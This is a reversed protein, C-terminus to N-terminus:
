NKKKINKLHYYIVDLIKIKISSFFFFPFFALCEKKVKLARGRQFTKIIKQVLAM